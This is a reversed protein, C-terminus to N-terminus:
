GPPLYIGLDRVPNGEYDLVVRDGLPQKLSVVIPVPIGLLLSPGVPKRVRVTVEVSRADENVSREVIEDGVGITVNVILKQPDASHQFSDIRVNSVSALSSLLLVVTLVALGILGAAVVFRQGTM